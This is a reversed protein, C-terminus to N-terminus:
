LLKLLNESRSEFLGAASSDIIRVDTYSKKWSSLRSSKSKSGVNEKGDISRLDCTQAAGFWKVLNLLCTIQAETKIAVFKEREAALTQAIKESGPCKAFVSDTLKGSLIDYLALNEKATIHDHESDPIIDLKDRRKQEFAELRKVYREMEGGLVLPMCPSVIVNSGGNAKGKLVMRMGDAEIITNIKIKRGGLLLRVDEVPKGGNIASIEASVYKAAFAEDTMLKDAYM